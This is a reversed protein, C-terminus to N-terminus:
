NGLAASRLINETIATVAQVAIIVTKKSPPDAPVLNLKRIAVAADAQRLKTM